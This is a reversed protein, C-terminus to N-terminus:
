VVGVGILASFDRREYDTMNKVLAVARQVRGRAPAPQVMTLVNNTTLASTGSLYSVRREFEQEPIAALQQWRHLEAPSIGLASAVDRVSMDATVPSGMAPRTKKLTM